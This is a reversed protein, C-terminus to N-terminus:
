RKIAWKFRINWRSCMSILPLKVIPMNIMHCLPINMRAKAKPHIKHRELMEVIKVKHEIHVQLVGTDGIINVAKLQM